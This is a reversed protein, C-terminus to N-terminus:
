WRHPWVIHLPPIGEEVEEKKVKEFTMVEPKMASLDVKVQAAEVGAPMDILSKCTSTPSLDLVCPLHGGMLCAPETESRRMNNGGGSCFDMKGRGMMADTDPDIPSMLQAGLPEVPSFCMSRRECKTQSGSEKSDALCTPRRRVVTEPKDGDEKVESLNNKDHPPSGASLGNARVMGSSERITEMNIKPQQLPSEPSLVLSEEPEPVEEIDEYHGKNPFCIPFNLVRCKPRIQEALNKPRHDPILKM